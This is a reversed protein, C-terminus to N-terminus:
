RKKQMMQQLANQMQSQLNVRQYDEPLSLAQADVAAGTRIATVLHDVDGDPTELKLSLGYRALDGTM